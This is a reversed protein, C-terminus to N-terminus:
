PVQRDIRVALGRAGPKVQASTGFPDGSQRGATGSRSIRAEIVVSGAQSLLRSPNMAQADSLEFSIPWREVTLRQAAIPVPSGDTGRALVFMTAGVPVQAKLSPDIDITGAISTAAAAGPSASAAAPPQQPASAQPRPAGAPAGNLETEIRAILDDMHQAERSGPQMSAALQKMYRLAVERNGLRYQAAGMLAVSKTDNPDLALARELLQLPKGAFSGGQALMVEEAQEALLWAEQPLLASAREFSTAAAAHDGEQRQAQGLMAWAEADDPSKKVRDRLEGISQALRQPTIEGRLAARDLGVVLPTGLLNYVTLAAIPVALATALGLLVAQTRGLRRPTSVAAGEDSAPLQVAADEILEDLARRAEEDTLRGSDRETEIETRRDRYVAIRRADDTPVAASSRRRGGILLPLAISATAACAMAGVALWFWVM